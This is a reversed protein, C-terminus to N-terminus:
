PAPQPSESTVRVAARAAVLSPEQWREFLDRRYKIEVLLPPRLM